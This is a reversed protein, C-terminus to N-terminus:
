KIEKEVYFFVSSELVDCISLMDFFDPEKIIGKEIEEITEKDVRSLKALRRRSMGWAKRDQKLIKGINKRWKM